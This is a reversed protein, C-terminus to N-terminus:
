ACAPLQGSALRRPRHGSRLEYGVPNASAAVRYAKGDVLMQVANTGLTVRFRKGKYSATREGARLTQGAVLPKGKANVLCVYVDGTAALRVRIPAAAAARRRAARRQKATKRKPAKHTATPTPTAVSEGPNEDSGPWFKGLAFLAALLVVLIAAVVLVPGLAGPGRRRKRGRRPQARGPALGGFPAAEGGRPHEYRRKYEDVLRRSDLELYDAYSRLFTKVYTPGPLLEWEENELARLYKARIKTASEVEAMDIRRRMRAERLTEGIDPMLLALTRVRPPLRPFTIAPCRRGPRV